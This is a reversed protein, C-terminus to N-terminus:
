SKIMKSIIIISLWKNKLFKFIDMKKFTLQYPFCSFLKFLLCFSFSHQEGQGGLIGTSKVVMELKKDWTFTRIYDTAPLLILLLTINIFMLLHSYHNSNSNSRCYNINISKQCHKNNISKQCYALHQGLPKKGGM